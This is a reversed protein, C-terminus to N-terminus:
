HRDVASAPAQLLEILRVLNAREALIASLREAPRKGVLPALVPLTFLWGNYLINSLPLHIELLWAAPLELRRDRLFQAVERLEEEVPMDGGDEASIDFANQLPGTCHFMEFWDRHVNRYGTGGPLAGGLLCWYEVPRSVGDIPLVISVIDSGFFGEKM